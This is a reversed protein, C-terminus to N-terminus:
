FLTQKEGLDGTWERYIRYIPRDNKFRSDSTKAM